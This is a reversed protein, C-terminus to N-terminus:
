QSSRLRRFSGYGAQPGIAERPEDDPACERPGHSAHRTNRIVPREAVIGDLLLFLVPLERLM